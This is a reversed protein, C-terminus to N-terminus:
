VGDFEWVEWGLRERVVLADIEDDADIEADDRDDLETRAFEVTAVDIDLEM